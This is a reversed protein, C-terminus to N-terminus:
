YNEVNKRLAARKRYILNCKTKYNHEYLENKSPFKMKCISCSITWSPNSYQLLANERLEGIKAFLDGCITEAHHDELETRDEMHQFCVFCHITKNCKIFENENDMQKFDDITTDSETCQIGCEKEEYKKVVEIDLDNQSENKSNGQYEKQSKNESQNKIDMKHVPMKEILNASQSSANMVSASEKVLLSSHDTDVLV